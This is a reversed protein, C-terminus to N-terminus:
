EGTIKLHKSLADVIPVGNLIFQNLERFSVGGKAAARSYAFGLAEFKGQDGQALNGLKELTPKLTEANVGFTLLQKAVEAVGMKEFPSEQAVAAIIKMVETAKEASGTLTEFAIQNREVKEAAEVFSKGIEFIKKVVEFGIFGKIGKILTDFGGALKEVGGASDSSAGKIKKIETVSEGSAVKLQGNDLTISLKIEEAM